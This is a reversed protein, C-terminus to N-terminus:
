EQRTVGLRESDEEAARVALGTLREPLEIPHGERRLLRVLDELRDAVYDAGYGRQVKVVVPWHSTSYDEDVNCWIVSRNGDDEVRGLDDAFEEEDGLVYLLVPRGKGPKSRM